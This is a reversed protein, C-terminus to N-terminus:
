EGYFVVSEGEKSMFAIASHKIIAADPLCCAQLWLRPRDKGMFFGCCICMATGGQADFTNSVLRHQVCEKENKRFLCQDSSFFIPLIQFETLNAHRGQEDVFVPQPPEFYLNLKVM